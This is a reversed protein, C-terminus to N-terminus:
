GGNGLVQEMGRQLTRGEENMMAQLSRSIEAVDKHMEPLSPLPDTSPKPELSFTTEPNDPDSYTVVVQWAAHLKKAQKLKDLGATLLRLHVPSNCYFWVTPVKWLSGDRGLHGECSWCPRFLGTRKMEFVLPLIGREIPYKEPDVSLAQPAGLCGPGCECQCGLSGCRTCKMTCHQGCVRGEVGTARAAEAIESKLQRDRDLSRDSREIRM